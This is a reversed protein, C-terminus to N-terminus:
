DPLLRSRVKEWRTQVHVLLPSRRMVLRGQRLATLFADPTAFDAMEVYARGLERATHADSGVAPTIHNERAFRLARENDWPLPTRANFVELIDVQHRVRLLAEESLRSRRFRDFPHPVMVLGGQKRIRAITEEPTLGRPIEEELFLGIIEGECTRIEEGVIVRIAGQERLVLAGAITNHDTIAVCTIGAAQWGAVAAELTLRSDSSYFTHTHLDVRLLTHAM